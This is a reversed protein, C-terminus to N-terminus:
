YGWKDKDRIEVLYIQGNEIDDEIVVGPIKKGKRLDRIIKQKNILKYRDPLKSYFVQVTASKEKELWELWNALNELKRARERIEKIRKNM